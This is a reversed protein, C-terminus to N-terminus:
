TYRLIPKRIWDRKSGLKRVVNGAIEDRLAVQFDDRTEYSCFCLFETRARSMATTQELKVM